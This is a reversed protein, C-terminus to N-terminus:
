EQAAVAEIARKYVRLATTVDDFTIYGQTEALKILQKVKEVNAKVKGLDLVENKALDLVENFAVLAETDNRVQAKSGPTSVTRVRDSTALEVQGFAVTDTARDTGGGSSGLHVM